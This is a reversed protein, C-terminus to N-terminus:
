QGWGTSDDFSDQPKANTNSGYQNILYKLGDDEVDAVDMLSGSTTVVKDDDKTAVGKSFRNPTMNGLEMTMPSASGDEMINMHARNSVQINTGRHPGLDPVNPYFSNLNNLFSKANVEIEGTSKKTEVTDILVERYWEFFQISDKIYKIIIDCNDHKIGKFISIDENAAVIFRDTWRIFGDKSDEGNLYKITNDRVDAWPMRHPVAANLEALRPDNEDIETNSFVNFSM